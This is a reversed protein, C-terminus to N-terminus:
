IIWNIAFFLFFYAETYVITLPKGLRETKLDQGNVIYEHSYTIKSLVMKGPVEGCVHLVVPFSFISHSSLFHIHFLNRLFLVLCYYFLPSGKLILITQWSIEGFIFSELHGYYIYGGKLTHSLRTGDFISM